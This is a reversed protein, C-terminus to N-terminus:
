YCTGKQYGEYKAAEINYAWYSYEEGNTIKQVCDYTYYYNGYGEIVFVINEDFFDLKDSVYSWDHKGTLTNLQIECWSPNESCAETVNEVENKADDYLLIFVVNSIVLGGIILYLILSKNLKFYQKGCKKCKNNKDLKGGCLKCYKIKKNKVNTSEEIVEPITTAKSKDEKKAKKTVRPQNEDYVFLWKNIFYFIIAGVGGIGMSGNGDLIAISLIVSLLFMGISNWKCIKKGKITDIREKHVLRCIFPIVMMVISIVIMDVFGLWWASDFLEPVNLYQGTVSMWMLIFLCIIWAIQRKEM